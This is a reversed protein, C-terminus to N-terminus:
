FMGCIRSGREGLRFTARCTESAARWALAAEDNWPAVIIEFRTRQRRFLIASDRYDFGGQARTPLNIREMRNNGHWTLKRDEWIQDGIKLVPRGIVSHPLYYNSFAFGFFRNAGRPLELQNHSGGSSMSGAEVWLHNFASLSLAGSTMADWLVPVRSPMIRPEPLAPDPLVPRAQPRDWRRQYDALLTSSLPVTNRSLESWVAEWSGTGRAEAGAVVVETNHLLACNTLNASGIVFRTERPTDFLYVKPHYAVAPILIDQGALQSNAILIQSRPIEQLFSLARPETLGFDLSIIFTKNSREWQRSGMRGKVRDVLRRSGKYTSYAVAWRINQVDTDVVEDFAFLVQSPVVRTQVFVKM